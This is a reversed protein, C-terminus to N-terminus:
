SPQADCSLALRTWAIADHFFRNRNKLAGLRLPLTPVVDAGFIDAFLQELRARENTGAFAIPSDDPRRMGAPTSFVSLAATM